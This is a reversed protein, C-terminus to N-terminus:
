LLKKGFLKKYIRKEEEPTLGDLEYQECCLVANPVYVCDDCEIKTASFWIRTNNPMHKHCTDCFAKKATTNM